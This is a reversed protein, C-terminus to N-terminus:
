TAELRDEMTPYNSFLTWPIMVAQISVDSTYAKLQCISEDDNITESLNIYNENLVGLIGNIAGYCIDYKDSDKIQSIVGALSANIATTSGGSQAVMCNSQNM